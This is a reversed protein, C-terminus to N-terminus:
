IQFIKKETITDLASTAEDLILLESKKYLARSIAVRQCQGGSIKDGNEGLYLDLNESFEELCANKLCAKIRNENINKM